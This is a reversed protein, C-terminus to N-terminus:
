KPTARLNQLSPRPDSTDVTSTTSTVQQVPDEEEDELREAKPFLQQRFEVFEEYITAGKAVAIAFAIAFYIWLTWIFWDHTTEDYIVVLVTFTILLIIIITIISGLLILQNRRSKYRAYTEKNKPVSPMFGRIIAM